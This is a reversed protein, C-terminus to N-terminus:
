ASQEWTHAPCRHYHRPPTYLQWQVHRPYRACPHPTPTVNRSVPSSTKLSLSTPSSFVSQNERGPESLMATPLAVTKHLRAEQPHSNSTEPPKRSHPEPVVPTRLEERLVPPRRDLAMTLR